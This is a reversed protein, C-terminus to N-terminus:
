FIAEKTSGRVKPRAFRLDTKLSNLLYYCKSLETYNNLLSIRYRTQLRLRYTDIHLASDLSRQEHIYTCFRIYDMLLMGLQKITCTITESHYITSIMNTNIRSLWDILNSPIWNVVQVVYFHRSFAASNNKLVKEFFVDDKTCFEPFHM